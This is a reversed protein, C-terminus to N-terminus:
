LELILKVRYIKIGTSYQARVTMNSWSGTGPNGYFQVLLDKNNTSAAIYLNYVGSSTETEYIYYTRKRIYYSSEDGFLFLSFRSSDSLPDKSIQDYPIRIYGYNESIINLGDSWGKHFNNDTFFIDVYKIKDKINTVEYSIDDQRMTSNLSEYIQLERNNNFDTNNLLSGSTLPLSHTITGGSGNFPQTLQGSVSRGGSYGYLTLTGSSNGGGIQLNKTYLCGNPNIYVNSSRYVTDTTEADDDITKKSFLLPYYSGQNNNLTQTVKSDTANIKIGSDYTVTTNTGNKFNLAGTGTGTGLKETGNVKINRWTNTNTTYSPAAWTGDERLFKTSQSQNSVTAGKPVVGATSSSVKPINATVTNTDSGARTLTMKVNNNTSDHAFSASNVYRDTFVADSPVDKNINHGNVTVTDQSIERLAGNTYKYFKQTDVFTMRYYDYADGIYIYVKGDDTTPLTQTWWTEDLYFLGDSNNITGVLYVPKYGATGKTANNETNFSYRHDILGSHMTWINYTGVLADANYTANAYMLLVQGLRFGHTNRTKTSNVTSSTVISEWRGDANQMIMTFPFIKNTGAKLNPYIRRLYFGTSDTNYDAQAVWRNDTTAVGDISISGASYYTMIINSGKAFHTTLRDSNYYCNIAGTTTGDNLTLNLSANGSPTRSLFYSITLGDYLAPVDINGTWNGTNTTQTGIVPIITNKIDYINNDPLEIKKIFGM